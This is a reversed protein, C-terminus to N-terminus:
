FKTKAASCKNRGIFLLCLKGFLMLLVAFGNNRIRELSCHVRSNFLLINIKKKSYVNKPFYFMCFVVFIILICSSLNDCHVCQTMAVYTFGPITTPREM